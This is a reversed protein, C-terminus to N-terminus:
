AFQTAGTESQRDDFVQRLEKSAADANAADDALSAGEPDAERQRIFSGGRM